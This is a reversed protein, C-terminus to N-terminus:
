NHLVVTIPTLPGSVDFAADKLKPPRFRIKPNNSVGYPEAPLGLWTKDFEMNANRDHYLVLGYVGQADVPVCMTTEDARAPVRLQTLRMSGKLFREPHDDHLDATITGRAVKINKITVLISFPREECAIDTAPPSATEAANEAQAGLPRVAVLIAVLSLILLPRAFSM